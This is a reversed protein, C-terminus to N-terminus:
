SECPQPRIENNQEARDQSTVAQQLECTSFFNALHTTINQGHFDIGEGLNAKGRM